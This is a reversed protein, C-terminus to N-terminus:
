HLRPPRSVARLVALGAPAKAEQDVVLVGERWARVRWGFKGPDTAVLTLSATGTADTTTSIGLDGVYWGGIFRRLPTAQVTAGAVPAADPTRLAVSLVCVAPGLPVAAAYAPAHALARLGLAEAGLLM